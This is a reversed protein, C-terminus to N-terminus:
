SAWCAPRLTEVEWGEGPSTISRHSLTSSSYSASTYIGMDLPNLAEQWVAM